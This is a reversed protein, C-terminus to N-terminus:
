GVEQLDGVAKARIRSARSPLYALPVEEFDVVRVSAPDAGAAVARETAAARAQAVVTERAVGELDFVRDIEGGVQAIAAGLANAFAFHPPRLVQSVGQITEAALISGGGVIVAPLPERSPKMRDVTRAVMEDIVTLMHRAEETSIPVNQAVGVAARGARVAIDTATLTSGGFVWAEEPLRYGVSLPGVRRLARDVVSGGGLGLSFVDPMRFNTKVGAIEVTRAAPRPFGSVLVGVDTTTGGIDIVVADQMGSLFAAGRMSNTPGSSITRVPFQRAYDASMLTGDNQTLYFPCHLGQRELARGFSGVIEEALPLLTANLIAANERELLGVSGISASATIELGPVQERLMAAAQAEMTDRVPSFVSSIAAVKLGLRRIDRAAQRVENPDLAALERGDFEYGGHLQFVRGEVVGRLGGPWDVFPPLAAGSPLALRLVAVPALRREQVLANAFHTTGLMVARISQAPVERLVAQLAKEIGELVDPTTPTKHAVVVERGEIAVADTNTGGVDIGIRM